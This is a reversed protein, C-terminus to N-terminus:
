ITPLAPANTVSRSKENVEFSNGIITENTIYGTMELYGVGVIPPRVRLGDLSYRRGIPRCLGTPIRTGSRYCTSSEVTIGLKPISVRWRLPYVAHTEPEDLEGRLNWLLNTRGCIRTNRQMSSRERPIAMLQATTAVFTSLM